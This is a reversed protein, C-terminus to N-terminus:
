ERRPSRRFHLLFVDDVACLEEDFGRARIGQAAPALQDRGPDALLITGGPACLSTASEVLAAVHRREYLVDSCMVLGFPGEGLPEGWRATRYRLSVGNLEANRVVYPENDPHFDTALVDAGRLAAVVSPLGLGCGLEIVRLSELEMPLAAIYRALALASPWLTAYYPIMDTDSPYRAAYRDLLPDFDAVTELRVRFPGVPHDGVKMEGWREAPIKM